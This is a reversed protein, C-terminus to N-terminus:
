AAGIEEYLTRAEPAPGRREGLSVVRVVRVRAGQAFTVVSGPRVIAHAKEVVRGDMRPRQTEIFRCALSRSRFFRAQWLWTDLRM